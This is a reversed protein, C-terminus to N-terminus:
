LFPLSIRFATGKGLESQVCITGGLRDVTEKVIYLGLGSGSASHSARFFIDFIKDIYEPAIGIGNDEFVLIAGHESTSVKILFWSYEKSTDRYKIANSYINEIIILLRSKDGFFQVPEDIDYQLQIFKADPLFSLSEVAENVLERFSIAERDVETRKNRSYQLIENLFDELRIVCRRIMQIHASVESNLENTDTVDIIGRISLLPARLDHSTSYVFQDLEANYKALEKNKEELSEEYEKIETYDFLTGNWLISGDSLARPMADGKIWQLPKGPHVMRFVQRWPSLTRASEPISTLVNVLDEPHVRSFAYNVDKYVEDPSIGFIEIAGESVFPFYMRGDNDLVFQYVVGPISASVEHLIQESKIRAAESEIKSTVDRFFAQIYVENDITTTPILEGEVMIIGGGKSMFKLDISDSRVGRLVKNSQVEYKKIVDNSLIDYIRMNSIEAESCGITNKFSENTFLIKGGVDVSFMLDKSSQIFSRYRGESEKLSKQQSVMHRVARMVVIGMLLFTILIIALYIYIKQAVGRSQGQMRMVNATAQNDLYEAYQIISIKLKEFLKDQVYLNYSIAKSKNSRSLLLVSDRAFRNIGRYYVFKDLYMEEVSDNVLQQLQAIRMENQHYHSNIMQEEVKMDDHSQAVIHRLTAVQIYAASSRLDGLLKLRNSLRVSVSSQQEFIKYSEIYFNIGAIICIVLLLVYCSVLARQVIQKSRLIEQM